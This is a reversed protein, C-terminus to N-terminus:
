GSPYLLKVVFVFPVNCTLFFAYGKGLNFIFDNLKVFHVSGICTIDDFNKSRFSVANVVVPDVLYELLSAKCHTLRFLPVSLLPYTRFLISLNTIAPPSACSLPDSTSPIIASRTHLHNM